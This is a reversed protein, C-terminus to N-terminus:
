IWENSAGKRAVIGFKLLIDRIRSEHVKFEKALSTMTRGSVYEHCVYEYETPPVKAKRLGTKIAHAVNEKPTAWELNSVCNNLTNGDIHNVQEKNMPNDLFAEAVLRHVSYKKGGITVRAPIYDKARNKRPIPRKEPKLEVIKIHRVRGLNSVQYGEHGAIDRWEEIM